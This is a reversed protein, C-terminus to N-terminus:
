IKNLREIESKMTGSRLGGSACLAYIHASKGRQAPVTDRSKISGFEAETRM